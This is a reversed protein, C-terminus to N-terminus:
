LANIKQDQKQTIEYATEVEKILDTFDPIKDDREILFPKPGLHRWTFEFLRWVPDTIEADHTDFLFDGMDTHGALHYQVVRDAPIKRIYDYPDFGHNVSNVYINNVDLLLECDGREAILRIFDAEDIEDTQFRVYSSINELVFKRKLADQVQRIRPVLRDITAENMPLPLLDHWNRKEIGTWCLHDSVIFPDVREILIKLKKLYDLNLPDSSGINLSVGHLAVSLQDRVKLLTSLPRGGTDMYNESIVEVWDVSSPNSLIDQYHPPRLGLGKHGVLTM